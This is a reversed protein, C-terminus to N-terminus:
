KVNCVITVINTCYLIGGNCEKGNVFGMICYIDRFYKCFSFNM